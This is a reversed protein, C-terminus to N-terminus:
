DIQDGYRLRKMPEIPIPKKTFHFANESRTARNGDPSIAIRNQIRGLKLLYKMLEVTSRDFAVPM